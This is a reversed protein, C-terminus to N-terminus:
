LKEYIHIAEIFKDWLLCYYTYTQAAHVYVM